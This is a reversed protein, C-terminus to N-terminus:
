GPGVELDEEVSARLRDKEEASFSSWHRGELAGELAFLFLANVRVRGFRHQLIKFALASGARRLEEPTEIGVERLMEASTPGLNSLDTLADEPM